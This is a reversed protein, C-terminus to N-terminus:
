FGHFKHFQFFHHESECVIVFKLIKVSRKVLTLVMCLLLDVLNDFAMSLEIKCPTSTNKYNKKRSKKLIVKLCFIVKGQNLRVKGLFANRM